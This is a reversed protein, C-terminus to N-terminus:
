DDHGRRPEFSAFHRRGHALLMLVVVLSAVLCSIIGVYSVGAMGCASVTPILVALTSLLQVAGGVFSGSFCRLAISLDNLFSAVATTMAFLVLPRLLYVYPRIVEGCLLVLVPEGLIIIGVSCVAFVVLLGLATRGLLKRLKAADGDAFAQSFYSILPAYAYAAGMQIVNVPQSASAYAGLAAAGMTASLYQKPLSGSASVMIGAVVIPACSVLLRGAKRLRIGVRIPGFRCAHPYTYLVGALVSAVIMLLFTTELSGTLSFVATFVGISLAGQLMNSIGVYDMRLHVQCCSQLVGVLVRVYRYVLYLFIPVWTSQDCTIVFYATSLALAIGCTILNFAFYEGTTNEDTVDSIQITNMRYAAVMSFVYYVSLALSYLGAAGFGNELRVVVIGILYQCVLDFLSGATNWVM